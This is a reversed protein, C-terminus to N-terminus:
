LPPCRPCRLRGSSSLGFHPSHTRADPCPVEHQEHFRHGSTALGLVTVITALFRAALLPNPTASAPIRCHLCAQKGPAAIPLCSHKGQLIGLGIANAVVYVRIPILMWDSHFLKSIWM